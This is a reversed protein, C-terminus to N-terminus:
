IPYLLLGPVKSFHKKNLTVVVGGIDLATAAILYDPIQLDTIGSRYIEGARQAIVWTLDIKQFYKSFDNIKKIVRSDKSSKGSFLEFSVVTPLFLESDRDIEKVFENWRGGGRLHDILLSTDVVLKM